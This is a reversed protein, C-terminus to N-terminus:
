EDPLERAVDVRARRSLEQRLMQALLEVIVVKPREPLERWTPGRRHPHFLGLQGHNPRQHRAKLM